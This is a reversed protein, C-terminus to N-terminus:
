NQKQPNPLVKEIESPPLTFSTKQKEYEKTLDAVIEPYDKALDYKESPDNDINYLLPTAHVDPAAPSYSAHTLFHAKWSGKRIAYVQENLYYPLMERAKEQQGFLVGSQDIGDLVRDKPLSAKAVAAITPLLDMNSMLANSTVNAKIKGPWWAIGPVRMGGEYTSNKGEYLLGASGGHDKQVLWPGNDSTFVVLTNQDLKLEKLTKLIQGVSWDLEAVVDGYLGRPSKGEFDPSAYLPTHPFNSAYYMLFPKDKSRKIFQIVEDTYRKTLFHQDPEEEIITENKYLPLAPANARPGPPIGYVGAKSTTFVKGMDNSYPTGFWYDFGQRTPLFEQLHGLHWKGVLGTAYGKEKLMEAITVESLPLGSASNQRFVDGKGYVGTRAPLRGTLLAARSPTCVAAGSYFETFRMGEVAMRDLNPTSITPHGYCGLDGYGLDDALIVIINPAKQSQAVVPFGLLVLLLSGWFHTNIRNIM